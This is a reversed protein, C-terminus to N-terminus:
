SAASRPRTSSCAAFARARSPLFSPASGLGLVQRRRGGLRLELEADRGSDVAEALEAAATNFDDPHARSRLFGPVLWAAAPVGLLAAAQPGVYSFDFSGARMTWPITRTTELLERYQEHSKQLESTREIVKQEVTENLAGLETQHVALTRMESRNQAIGMILVIDEFVVWAAHEAFRWWEPNTVGYVSEPFYLGRALHDAAVVLTATVLLRWDRYFALFALSGFIHFHTEIRGGSLHILLASWLMQSIAVAHRTGVWGPKLSTLLFIPISLAGGLFVASYVHAHVSQLRGAWTYPSVTVALVIGLLWQTAMLWTFVRDSRRYVARLRDEFLAEATPLSM